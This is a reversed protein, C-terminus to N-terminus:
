QTDKLLKGGFDLLDCTNRELFFWMYRSDSLLHKLDYFKKVFSGGINESHKLIGKRYVDQLIESIFEWNRFGEM